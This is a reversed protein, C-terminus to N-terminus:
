TYGPLARRHREKGLLERVFSDSRWRQELPMFEEQAVGRLLLRAGQEAVSSLGGEGASSRHVRSFWALAQDVDGQHGYAFGFVLAFRPDVQETTRGTTRFYNSMALLADNSRNLELYTSATRLVAVERELPSLQKKSAAEYAAL